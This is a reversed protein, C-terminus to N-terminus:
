VRLGYEVLVCLSSVTYAAPDTLKAVVVATQTNESGLGAEDRLCTTYSGSLLLMEM